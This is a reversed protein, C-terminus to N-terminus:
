SRKEPWFGATVPVVVAMALLARLPWPLLYLGFFFLALLGGVAIIGSFAAAAANARDNNFKM